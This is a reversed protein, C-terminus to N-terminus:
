ACPRRRRIAAGAMGFGTILLGWTGPEPVGGMPDPDTQGDGLDFTLGAVSFGPSFHTPAFSRSVLNDDVFDDFSAYNNVQLQVVDSSVVKQMLLHYGGTPDASLGAVSFGASFHTPAFSLSARKDDVFDNFSAYNNVQLQVVDSSVVKQMLLHYGGTPDSSLGVVSFGASYHTPAFSLSARKDDVFDDFSAYNNVQLQVVDGSVVKQMLLHYGGTPDSTLEVVSFGASFHTPAFSHSALNDDVFDDFSAYNNVQLQVVDSSVVKQMLLHVGSAHSAAAHSLAAVAAIAPLAQKMM